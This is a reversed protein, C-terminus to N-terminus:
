LDFRFREIAEHLERRNYGRQRSPHEDARANRSTIKLKRYIAMGMQERSAFGCAAQLEETLVFRVQPELERLYRRITAVPEPLDPEPQAPKPAKPNRAIDDLTRFLKSDEPRPLGLVSRGGGGTEGAKPPDPETPETPKRPDHVTFNRIIDDFVADV